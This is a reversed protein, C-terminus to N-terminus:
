NEYEFVISYGGSWYDWESGFSISNWQVETGTYYITALNTCRFFAKNGIRTVSDPIVVNTLGSCECFANDGISSASDTLIVSKLSAPVSSNNNAGSFIYGIFTNTTRTRGVFPLTM